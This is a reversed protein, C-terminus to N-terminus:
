FVMLHINSIAEIFFLIGNAFDGRTEMFLFVVLLIAVIIGTARLTQRRGFKQAQTPTM